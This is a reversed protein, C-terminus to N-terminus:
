ASALLPWSVRAIWPAPEAPRDGPGCDIRRQRWVPELIKPPVSHVSALRMPSLVPGSLIAGFMADFFVFRLAIFLPPMAVSASPLQQCM